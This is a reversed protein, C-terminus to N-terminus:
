LFHSEDVSKLIHILNPKRVSEDQSNSIRAAWMETIMSVAGGKVRETMRRSSHQGERIFDRHCFRFDGESTVAHCPPGIDHKRQECQLHRQNARNHRKQAGLHPQAISLTSQVGTNEGDAHHRRPKNAARNLPFEPALCRNTERRKTQCHAKRTDHKRRDGNHANERRPKHPQDARHNHDIHRQDLRINM